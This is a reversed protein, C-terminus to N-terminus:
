EGDSVPEVATITRIEIPKGDTTVDLEARPPGDIHTYLWKWIDMVDRPSAELVTGNPFTAKGTTAIQWALCAMLRKGSIRKGAVELTKSGARTLIETLARNKPPRGNPNGSVGQKWNPNGM